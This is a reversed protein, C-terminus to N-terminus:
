SAEEERIFKMRKDYLTKNSLINWSLFMLCLCVFLFLAIYFSRSIFSDESTKLYTHGINAIGLLIVVIMTVVINKTYNEKKVLMIDRM